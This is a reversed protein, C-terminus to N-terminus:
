GHTVSVVSLSAASVPAVINELAATQLSTSAHAAAGGGNGKLFGGRQGEWSLLYQYRLGGVMIWVLLLELIM